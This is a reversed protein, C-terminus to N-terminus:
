MSYPHIRLNSVQTLKIQEIYVEKMYIYIYVYLYVYVYLYIYIYVIYM